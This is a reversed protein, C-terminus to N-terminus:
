PVLWGIDNYTWASPQTILSTGTFVNANSGSPAWRVAVGMEYIAFNANGQINWDLTLM